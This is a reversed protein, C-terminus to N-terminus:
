QTGVVLRAPADYGTLPATFVAETGDGLTVRFTARDASLHTELVRAGPPLTVAVQEAATFDIVGGPREAPAAIRVMMAVLIAVIAATMLVIAIVLVRVMGTQHPTPPPATM